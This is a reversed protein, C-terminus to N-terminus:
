SHLRLDPCIIIDVYDIYKKVGENPRGIREVVKLKNIKVTVNITVVTYDIVYGNTEREIIVSIEKTSDVHADVTPCRYSRLWSRDDRMVHIKKETRVLWIICQRREPSVM